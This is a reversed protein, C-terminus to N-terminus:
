SRVVVEGGGCMARRCVCSACLVRVGIDVVVVVEGAVGGIGVKRRPPRAVECRRRRREGDGSVGSGAGGVRGRGAAGGAAEAEVHRQGRRRRGRRGVRGGVVGEGDDVAERVLRPLDRVDVLVHHRVDLRLQQLPAAPRRRCRAPAAAAPRRPLLLIAGAVRRLLAARVPRGCAGLGAAGRESLQMFDVEALLGLM